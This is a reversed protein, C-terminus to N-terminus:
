AVKPQLYGQIYCSDPTKGANGSHPRAANYHEVYSRIRRRAKAMTDYEHLYVEEYKLSRWFREIFANDTARGKGDMSIRVKREELAKIWENSTFQAGQDTNFVQPAGYHEFAEELAELCFRSDLSNSLRWALIKRSYWDMVAVMYVFGGSIRIYTIDTCWAVNPADVALTKMLYPYIKHGVAPKSTNPKPALAVIGMKRMLKRVRERGVSFGQLRLIDRIMRSGAYPCRTYIEDVRRQLQLQAASPGKRRYRASSRALDLLKCQQVVPLQATRDIMSRKAELCSVSSSLNKNPAASHRRQAGRYLWDREM